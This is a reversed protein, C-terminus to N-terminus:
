GPGAGAVALISEVRNGLDWVAELWGNLEGHTPPLEYTRHHGARSLAWWAHAARGALRRDGLLSRLCLLQCRASTDGLGPARLAWLRHMSLELSQRGLLAAARPWMGATAADPIALLDRAAAVLDLPHDGAPTM